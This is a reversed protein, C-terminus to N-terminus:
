NIIQKYSKNDIRLIYLGSNLYNAIFSSGDKASNILRGQLNFLSVTSYRGKVEIRREITKISYNDANITQVASPAAYALFSDCTFNCSVDTGTYSFNAAQTQQYTWNTGNLGALFKVSVSHTAVKDYISIAFVKSSADTSVLTMKQASTPLTWGWQGGVVYCDNVSTPVTVNITFPYPYAKFSTVIVDQSLGSSVATINGNSAAFSWDTGAVLQFIGSGVFSYPLYARFLKTGATNDTSIYTLPNATISWANFNGSVYCITTQLPVTVNLVFQDVGANPSFRQFPSALFGDSNTLNSTKPNDFWAYRVIAPNPVSSSSVIVNNGSITATANYFKRDLGAITFGTLAGTNKAVLGTGTNTFELTISNSNFTTNSLVPGSGLTNQGYNLKLACQALRYGVDKKNTPHINTVDGLDTIVAQATKPIVLTSNQVDRLEAWQSEQPSTTEAGYGPLQVWMFSFDYGFRKRWDSIMDQFLPKYKLAENANNEGQYWIVGKIGTKILPNIMGNYLTSPWTPAYGSVDQLYVAQTKGSAQEITQGAYKKYDPDVTTIEDWAMWSRISTQYWASTILGIPINLNTQLNKGFYYAVASFTASSSPSCSLWSAQPIDTQAVTNFNKPVTLLRINTNTSAPIETASSAEENLRFEMNSQGSCLYVDGILVNTFSITNSTGQVTLTFPGGFVMAPLKVQWQGNSDATASATAGNFTVTATEGVTANGFVTIPMDRQLVMNNSFFKPLSVDAFTVSSFTMVSIILILSKKLYM